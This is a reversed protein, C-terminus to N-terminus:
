NECFIKVATLHKELGKKYVNKLLPNLLKPLFKHSKATMTLTLETGPEVSRLTFTSDWITGHSDAVMRIHENEIFETIELETLSERNNMLRTERFKTGVGSKTDSLFEIKIIDPNTNPLNDIESVAQFVLEIPAQINIKVSVSTM